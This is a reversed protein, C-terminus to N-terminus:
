SHRVYKGGGVGAFASSLSSCHSICTGITPYQMTVANGWRDGGDQLVHSVSKSFCGFFYFDGDSPSSMIPSQQENSETGADM